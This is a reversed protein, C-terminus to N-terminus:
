ASNRQLRYNIALRNGDLAATGAASGKFIQDWGARGPLQANIQKSSETGVGRVEGAPCATLRGRLLM